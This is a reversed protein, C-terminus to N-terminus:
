VRAWRRPLSVKVVVLVMRLLAGFHENAMFFYLMRLFLLLVEIAILVVFVQACGHMWGHLRTNPSPALPSVDSPDVAGSLLRAPVCSACGRGAIRNWARCTEM